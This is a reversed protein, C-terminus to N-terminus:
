AAHREITAIEEDSLGFLGYITREVRETAKALRESLDRAAAREIDYMEIWEAKKALPVTLQLRQLEGVFATFDLEYWMDLKRSTTLLGFDAKVLRLIKSTLEALRTSCDSIVDAETHLDQALLRPPVPLSNIMDKNFVVGANYSSSSYKENVYFSALRSNVLACLAKLTNDDNHTIVLTSKGPVYEGRLDLAADLLTIGKIIIKKAASRRVYEAGFKSAFRDREVVPAEYDKKLYRMTRRGWRFIYKDITGTNVVKYYDDTVTGGPLRDELIEALEYADSTACASECAAITRLGPGVSELKRLFPLEDSFLEDLPSAPTLSSKAVRANVTFRRDKTTVLEVHTAPAKTVTTVISDVLSQEFVDRGLRVISVLGPLLGRRAEAGFPKSLWKDPTIFCMVGRTNLLSYAREFFAIYLDWNGKAFAYNRTVWDRLAAHGGRVMEESDIYPPNAIVVDFGGAKAADPFSATWDVANNGAVAPDDSISNGLRINDDLYTLKEQRNATKLWLSLKTIEVSESNIDVGFLNNVLIHSDWRFLQAQGGKLTTLQRNITQGERYLFDFAEILFAGSGCAPDLVRVNSLVVRFAEWASVHEEVQKNYVVANKNKGRTVIKISAFDERSLRPLSSFRLERKRDEVWAGLAQEVMYQTVTAPTYYVGEKKRKSQKRDPPKNPGLSARLEELDAISQEFIHGLISVSVESDFDYEGLQKFGLCLQDDVRMADLASDPAFLGGNYAPINLAASGTNVSHFLGKFNDWIPQPNFPNTADYASRLTHPPLLGKDEAFAIFLVRDLITQAHHVLTLPAASPNAAILGTVLTSRIAKYEDYLKATIDRDKEDSELLLARTNGGLLNEASLLLMFRAFATPETLTTLDFTEYDKRGYGIAYLRIDRYNSVLVWQAGKADMAYEWAQQVPSKHRGPMIADLDQTSAGKLEFPAVVRASDSLFDGLAVDVNGRGLPINKALTWNPADGKGAYGLVGILINQIFEADNQTEVDYLGLALNKRWSALIQQQVPTPRPVSGLRKAIIRPHILSM